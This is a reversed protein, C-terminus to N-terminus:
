SQTGYEQMFESHTDELTIFQFEVGRRGTSSREKEPEIRQFYKEIKINAFQFGRFNVFGKYRDLTKGDSDLTIVHFTKLPVFTEREARVLSSKLLYQVYADSTPLSYGLVRIHNAESLLQHAVRWQEKIAKDLTKSWTPPIIDEPKDVSGHLKALWPLGLESASTDSETRQFRLSYEAHQSHRNLFDCVTELVCDYNLSIVDYRTETNRTQQWGLYPHGGKEYMGITLNHLSAVFQGYDKWVSDDGFVYEGWDGRGEIQQVPEIPPTYASIVDAIYKRFSEVTSEGEEPQPELEGSMELISLIEEINNLDAKFYKTAIATSAIKSLIEVFDHDKPNLRYLEKSKDIFNSMVPLGRPQSFGAGLFYVVREQM